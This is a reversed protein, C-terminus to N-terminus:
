ANIWHEVRVRQGTQWYPFEAVDGAAFIDKESTQLFPDCVLGGDKGVQVSSTALFETNPRCGTGMIVMDADISSGDEFHVRKVNGKGDGEVSKVHSQPTLRVGHKLHENAIMKGVEAGLVKQLPYEQSSTLYVDIKNKYKNKLSAASESGVFSSGVVVVNKAFKAHEKVLRQDEESRITYVGNLDAGPISPKVARTGSAVCLKDYNIQEGSQLTIKKNKSDVSKVRSSLKYEIDNGEIFEQSRLAFKSADGVPLAKTLLSRDYPIVAEDSLVIVEGRFDSQRLTEACNLGAPGGGIVVYRRKDKPDRKVMPMTERQKLPLQVQVYHKGNREVVDYRPIGDLAPALEPAGTVVSFAAAHFPCMVKDEFLMGWSLPAGFHSCYNGVAYLKGQFNAVLVKDQKGEGVKLEQMEGEGLKFDVLVETLGSDAEATQEKSAFARLQQEM